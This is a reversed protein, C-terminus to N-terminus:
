LMTKFWEALVETNAASTFPLRKRVLHLKLCLLLLHIVLEYADTMKFNRFDGRDNRRVFGSVVPVLKFVCERLASPDKVVLIGVYEGLLFLITKSEMYAAEEIFNKIDLM